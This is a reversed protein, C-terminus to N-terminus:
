FEMKLTEFQEVTQTTSFFMFLLGVGYEVETQIQNSDINMDHGSEVISEVVISIRDMNEVNYQSSPYSSDLSPLTIWM